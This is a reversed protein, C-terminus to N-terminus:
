KSKLARWGLWLWCLGLVLPILSIEIVTQDMYRSFSDQASDTLPGISCTGGILMAFVGLCVLFIGKARQGSPAGEQDGNM